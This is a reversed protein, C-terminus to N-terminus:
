CCRAVDLNSGHGPKQLCYQLSCKPVHTKKINHNEWPILGLLPTALDYPLNIGLKKLVRWVTRWLKGKWKRLTKSSCFSKINISPLKDIKEEIIQAKKTIQWEMQFEKM